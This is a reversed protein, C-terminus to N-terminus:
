TIGLYKRQFKLNILLKFFAFFFFFLEKSLYINPKQTCQTCANGIINHREINGLPVYYRLTRINSPLAGLGSGFITGLLTVRIGLNLVLAM